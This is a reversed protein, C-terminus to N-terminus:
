KRTYRQYIQSHPLEQSKLWAIQFLWWQLKGVVARRIHEAIGWLLLIFCESIQLFEYHQPIMQSSKRSNQYQWKESEAMYVLHADGCRVCRSGPFWKCTWRPAASSAVECKRFVAISFTCLIGNTYKSHRKTHRWYGASGATRRACRSFIKQIKMSNGSFIM